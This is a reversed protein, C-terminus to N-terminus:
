LAASLSHVHAVTDFERLFNFLRVLPADIANEPLTARSPQPPVSESGPDVTRDKAENSQPTVIYRALRADAEDAIYRKTIGTPSRPFAILISITVHDAPGCSCRWSM